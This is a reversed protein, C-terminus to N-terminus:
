NGTHKKTCYCGGYKCRLAVGDGQVPFLIEKFYIDIGLEVRFAVFASGIMPTFM